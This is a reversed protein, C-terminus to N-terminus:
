AYHGDGERGKSEWFASDMAKACARGLRGPAPGRFLVSKLGALQYGARAGRVFTPALV